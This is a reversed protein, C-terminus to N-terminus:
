RQDSTWSIWESYSDLALRHAAREAEAVTQCSPGQFTDNWLDVRVTTRHMPRGGTSSRATESTFSFDARTPDRQVAGRIVCRMARKPDWWYWSRPLELPWGLARWEASATMQADFIIAELRDDHTHDRQSLRNRLEPTGYGELRGSSAAAPSHSLEAAM